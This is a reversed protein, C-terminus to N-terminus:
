HEQGPPEPTPSNDSWAVGFAALCARGDPALIVATWGQGAPDSTILLVQGNQQLGSAIVHEGHEVELWNRLTTWNGCRPGAEAPLALCGALLGFVVRLVFSMGM